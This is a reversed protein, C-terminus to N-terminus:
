VDSGGKFTVWEERIVNVGRMKADPLKRAQWGVDILEAIPEAESVVVTAGASHWRLAMDVVDARPLGTAYGESGSYPPDIYVAAAFPEIGRADGNVVQCRAEVLAMESLRARLVPGTPPVPGFGSASRPFGYANAADFGSPRWTRERIALHKGIFSLRQIFLHEAAFQPLGEPVPAFHLSDWVERPDRAIMGDLITVVEARIAPDLVAEMTRGWPGPDVLLVDSPPGHFGLGEFLGVLWRRHKWKNGQYSVLSRKAGLLYMTLASSGCCLEVLHWPRGTAFMPIQEYM